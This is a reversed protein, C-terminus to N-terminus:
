TPTVSNWGKSKVAGRSATPQAGDGGGKQFVWLKMGAICNLARMQDDLVLNWQTPVDANDQAHEDFTLAKPKSLHVYDLAVCLRPKASPVAATDVAVRQVTHTNPDVLTGSAPRLTWSDAGAVLEGAFNQVGVPGGSSSVILATQGRPGVPSPKPTPEKAVTIRYTDGTSVAEPNYPDFAPGSDISGAYVGSRHSHGSFHYDVARGEANVCDGLYWARNKQCTGTNYQNFAGDQVPLSGKAGLAVPGGYNVLTFHSFVSLSKAKGRAKRTQATQIIKKQAESIGDVSRPLIGLGQNDSDLPNLNGANKYNEAFGWGLGVLAQRPKAIDAGYHVAWNSLPTFLAYFWDFQSENFNETMIIQGYTPGYALAAEYITMNHDAPIGGNAKDASYENLTTAKGSDTLSKLADAFHLGPKELVGRKVDRSLKKMRPSIGYPVQYAEHNGTTMFVPLKLNTYAYRVLSFMLMDDQGRPYVDSKLLNNFVNFASWQDAIKEGAKAPCLNRNFDILDGTVFLADAQTPGNGFQDFLNKLSELCHAVKSGVAQAGPVGELVNAQSQALVNQRINVHVDSLHGMKLQDAAKARIVPHWSLIAHKDATKQNPQGTRVPQTLDFEAWDPFHDKQAPASRFAAIALDNGHAHTGKLPKDPKAQKLMWAFSMFASDNIAKFPPAELNLVLEFVNPTDEYLKAAHPSVTFAMDIHGAPDKTVLPEAQAIHGLYVCQIAEKALAYSKGDSFLNGKTTDDESKKEVIPHLRLHRDVAGYLLPAPSNRGKAGSALMAKGEVAIIISCKKQGPALVLPMGLSPYLIVARVDSTADCDTCGPQAPKGNASSAALNAVITKSSTSM